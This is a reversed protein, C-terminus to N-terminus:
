PAHALSALRVGLDGPQDWSLFADLAAPAMHAGNTMFKERLLATGAPHQPAGEPYACTKELVEGSSLTVRLRDPQDPDFNLEPRAPPMARIEVKGILTRLPAAAIQEPEFDDLTVTGRLLATAVGFPVSFMAETPTSPRDCRAIAHHFDPLEAEVRSIAAPDIRPALARACDVLRHTYSCSPYLKFALGWESLARGNLRQLMRDLRDPERHCLLTVFGKPGDFAAPSATVGQEALLAATLGDRAAFGTQLPKAGTGIQCTFGQAQSIALSLAHATQAGDLNLARAAAGAAGITGITATAHFGLNYHNLNLAEGLRAIIEFGAAYATAAHEGDIPRLAALAWIAPWLVASPHTNGPEEWDDFDQVHSATANCLAALPVAVRQGTGFVPAPGPSGACGARVQRATQHRSGALVCGMLDIGAWRVTEREAPDPLVMSAAFDALRNLRTM